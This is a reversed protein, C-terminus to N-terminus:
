NKAVLLNQKDSKGQISPRYRVPNEQTRSLVGAEELSMIITNLSSGSIRYKSIKIAHSNEETELLLSAISDDTEQFFGSLYYRIERKSYRRGPLHEILSIIDSLNIIRGWEVVTKYNLDYTGSIEIQGSVPKKTNTKRSRFAQAM